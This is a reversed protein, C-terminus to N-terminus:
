DAGNKARRTKLRKIFGTVIGKEYTNMSILWMSAAYAVTYIAAGAIFKWVTDIHFALRYAVAIGVPLVAGPLIRLINKWYGGVDIGCRKSYYINMAIVNALVLVIATGAASGVSGFRIALPISIGINVGAMILTIFARPKFLNKAQVISIAVSQTIPILAGCILLAAVYYSRSCIKGAHWVVFEKGFLLFGCAIFFVTFFQLRSVKIFEDSLRRDSEKRAVMASIKPLMVSSLAGSVLLVMQNYNSAMSYVTVEETGRVVGLIAQDVYWNVKDVIETIFVFVSYSFIQLFVAKDFGMFRVRVDLVRRCYIFNSLLCGINVVTLVAVIAISDGGLIIIPLTILPNLLVRAITILKAFIFREHSIIINNYITLSFTAGINASLIIMLIRSKEIEAASLSAAFIRHANFAITLGACVALVGIGLFIVSFMGLLRKEEEYKGAARYKTGFVVIGNGFGLDMVTLYNIVSATLQYLGYESSGLLRLVLPQYALIVLMNVAIYVYSLVAGGRRQGIM